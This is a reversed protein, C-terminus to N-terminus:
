ALRLHRGEPRHRPQNMSRAGPLETPWPYHTQVPLSATQPAAACGPCRVDEDVAWGLSRARSILTTPPLAMCLQAQHPCRGEAGDCSIITEMHTRVAMQKGECFNNPDDADTGLIWNQM